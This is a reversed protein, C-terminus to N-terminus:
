KKGGQNVWDRFLARDKDDMYIGFPMTRDVVVRQYISYRLAYAKHYQTFDRSGSNHCKFCVEKTIPKIDTEFSVNDKVPVDPLPDRKCAQLSLMTSLSGILVISLVTDM